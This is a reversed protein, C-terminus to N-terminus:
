DLSFRWNREVAGLFRWSWILRMPTTTQWHDLAAKVGPM